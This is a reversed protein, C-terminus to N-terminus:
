REDELGRCFLDCLAPVGHKHLIETIMEKPRCTVCSVAFSFPDLTNRNISVFASAPVDTHPNASTLTFLSLRWFNVLFCSAWRKSIGRDAILCALSCRSAQCDSYGDM